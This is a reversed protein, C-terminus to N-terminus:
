IRRLSGRLIKRVGECVCVYVCERERDKNIERTFSAAAGATVVRFRASSLAGNRRFMNHMTEEM